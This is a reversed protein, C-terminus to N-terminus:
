SDSYDCNTEIIESLGQLKSILDLQERFVVLKAAFVSSVLLISTGECGLLNVYKICGM